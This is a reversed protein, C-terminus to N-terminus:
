DELTGEHEGNDKEMENLIKFGDYFLAILIDSRERVMHINRLITFFQEEDYVPKDDEEQIDLKGVQNGTFEMITNKVSERVLDFDKAYDGLERIDYAM